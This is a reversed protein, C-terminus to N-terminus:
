VWKGDLSELDKVEFKPMVPALLGDDKGNLLEERAQKDVEVVMAASIDNTTM